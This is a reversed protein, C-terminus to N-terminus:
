EGDHNEQTLLRSLQDRWDGEISDIRINEVSNAIMWALTKANPEHDSVRVQCGNALTWYCSGHESTGNNKAGVNHLFTNAEQWAANIDELTLPEYIRGGDFKVARTDWHDKRTVEFTSGPILKRRIMRGDALLGAYNDGIEHLVRAKLEDRQEKIAKEQKGLAEYLEWRQCSEESLQVRVDNATQHLAKILQPTSSHTWTPEPPRGDRVREMLEVGAAILHKILEDHRMVRYTRLTRGDILVAVHAVQANTVALQTQTQCLYEIPIDDTEQDGWKHAMRWNATKAEMIETPSVIGDPTAIITEYKDHRLMPPERDILKLGTRHEWESKVVPELLRGLRMADTDEIPPLKGRKRSYLELPTQWESLGAAIAIESAGIATLRAEYWEPTHPAAVPIPM